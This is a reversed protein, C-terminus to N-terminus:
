GDLFIHVGGGDADLETLCMDRAYAKWDIYNALHEPIDICGEMQEEAYEAPTSWEGAYRDDLISEVEEIGGFYCAAIGAVTGREEILTAFEVLKEIDEGESVEYGAFGEHDHIAWEEASPYFDTVTLNTGDCDACKKAPDYGVDFFHGCDRCEMAYRLINPDPSDKLIGAIGKWVEDVDDVDIWRGHLTGANYAALCAVYIRPTDTM